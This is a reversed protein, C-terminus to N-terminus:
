FRRPRARPLLLRLQHAAGPAPARAARGRQRREQHEPGEETILARGRAAGAGERRGDPDAHAASGEMDAGGLCDM